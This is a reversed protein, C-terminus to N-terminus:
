LYEDDYVVSLIAVQVAAPEFLLCQVREPQEAFVLTVAIAFVAILIEGFSVIGFVDCAAALKRHLPAIVAGSIKGMIPRNYRLARQAGIILLSLLLQIHARPCLKFIASLSRKKTKLTEM